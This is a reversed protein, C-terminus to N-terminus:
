APDFDSEAGPPPRARAFGPVEASIGVSALFRAIVDRQTVAALIKMPGRPLPVM